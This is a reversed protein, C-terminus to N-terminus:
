LNRWAELLQQERQVSIGARWEQVAPREADWALTDRVTDALPRCLLGAAFAKRCNVSMEEGPIWLPLQMWPEVGQDILFQDEIWVLHAESGSRTICEQLMAGMSLPYSPGTANYIGTHGEEVMQVIWQALDRVDIVQVQRDPNGPALVAGGQAMRHPWYTFRDTPDNPGVILGPRIILARGPFASATAQECLAKLPGYTEGTVETCLPDALIGVPASEDLNPVGLDPYVSISSIFTYHDARSALLEASARVIHPVYGCTDIVADWHGDQLAALDIGRDGHLKEVQPFLDANHQGRNFMTIQHGRVLAIEVIHRGLFVTGGLILLKM